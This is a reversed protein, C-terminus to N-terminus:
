KAGKKIEIVWKKHRIVNKRPILMLGFNFQRKKGRSDEREKKGERVERERTEEKVERKKKGRKDRGKRKRKRM